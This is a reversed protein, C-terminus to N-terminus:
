GFLQLLHIKFFRLPWTSTSNMQSQVPDLPQEQSCPLPGQPEM